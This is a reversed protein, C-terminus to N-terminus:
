FDQDLIYPTGSATIGAGSVNFHTSYSNNYFEVEAYGNEDTIVNPNWYLTRRYDKPQGEIPGDPYQPSYFQVPRNFGTLTTIRQGSPSNDYAKTINYDDKVLVDVLYYRQPSENAYGGEMLTRTRTNMRQDILKIYLPVSEAIDKLQEPTDFVLIGQLDKTDLQWPFDFAGPGYLCQKSDHVYWFVPIGDLAVDKNIAVDEPQLTNNEGFINIDGNMNPLENYGLTMTYGKDLLYGLVDTTYNGWDLEAEVDKEVDYAKFTFYDIYKRGARIDVTPLLIGENESIKEKSLTPSIASYPEAKISKIYKEPMEIIRPSPIFARELRVIAKDKKVLADTTALRMSLTAKGYFDSVDFGFYGTNDTRHQGLEVRRTDGGPLEVSMFVDSDTVYKEIKQRKMIWGNLSISDEMRHREQYLDNLSMVSWDYREWGHIMMLLDLNHVHEADDSEFYYSPNQIYGKLDSTLLLNTILDNGFTGFGNADKVAICFRDRFPTGNRDTLNLSLRIQEYPAYVEKNRTVMIEPAKFGSGKNFISRAALVDGRASYIVIRCVGVPWGETSLTIDHVGNRGPILDFAVLEGRCTVSIGVTDVEDHLNIGYRLSVLDPASSIDATMTCGYMSVAPITVKYSAGDETVFHANPRRADPKLEFSGMGLHGSKVSIQETTGTKDVILTGPVGNGNQDTAKFAIRCLHGDLLIGGEPFFEVAVKKPTSGSPRTPKQSLPVDEIRASSYDGETVPTKFVPLVRSFLPCNKFNLQYQTYARVEYFGSPYHQIGRLERAQTTSEDVLRICGDAQGAIVKLVQHQLLTGDNALLDVYLVGSEARAFSTANVVFAKFWITEGQFYGNNDFQLYVKEQPEALNFQHINGAFRILSQRSTRKSLPVQIQASGHLAGVLAFLLFLAIRRM